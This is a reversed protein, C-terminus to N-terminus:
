GQNGEPTVWGEVGDSAARIHTRMVDSEEDKSPGGIVVVIEDEELRRKTASKVSTEETMVTAKVVKWFRRLHSAFIEESLAGESEEDLCAFGKALDDESLPKEVEGDAPAKKECSQM